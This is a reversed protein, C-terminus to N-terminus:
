YISLISDCTIKIINKINSNEYKEKNDCYIILNKVDILYHDIPMTHNYTALLCKDLIVGKYLDNRYRFKVIKGIM